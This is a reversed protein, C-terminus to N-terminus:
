FVFERGTFINVNSLLAGEPKLSEKESQNNFIGSLSGLSREDM